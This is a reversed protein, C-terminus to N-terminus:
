YGRCGPRGAAAGTRTINSVQQEIEVGFEASSQEMRNQGIKAQQVRGAAGGGKQNRGHFRQDIDVGGDDALDLKQGVAIQFPPQLVDLLFM